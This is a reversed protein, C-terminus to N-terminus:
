AWGASPAHHSAGEVRNRGSQEAVPEQGVCARVREAATRAELEDCGREALWVELRRRLGPAEDAVPGRM